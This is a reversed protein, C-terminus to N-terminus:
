CIDPTMSAVAYLALTYYFDWMESDTGLDYTQVEIQSDDALRFGSQEIQELVQREDVAAKAFRQQNSPVMTQLLEILGKPTLQELPAFKITSLMKAIADQKLKDM